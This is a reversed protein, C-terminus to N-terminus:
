TGTALSTRPRVSAQRALDDLLMRAALLHAAGFGQPFQRYIDDLVRRTVQKSAQASWTRALPIAAKLEWSLASQQRASEISSLLAEPAASLVTQPTALLIEGRARQLDPLWKIKGIHQAHAAAEDIIDLAEGLRASSALAEALARLTALTVVHHHANM